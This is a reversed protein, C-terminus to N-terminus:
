WKKVPCHTSLFKIKVDLFCGCIRCRRNKRYQCKECEKNRLVVLEKSALKPNKAIAKVSNILGKIIGCNDCDLEKGLTCRSLTKGNDLLVKQLYKCNIMGNRVIVVTLGLELVM